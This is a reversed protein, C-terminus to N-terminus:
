PCTSEIVFLVPHPIVFGAEGLFSEFDVPIWKPFVLSMIMKYGRVTAKMIPSAIICLM